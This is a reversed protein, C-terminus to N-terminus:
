KRFDRVREGPAEEDVFPGEGLNENSGAGQRLRAAICGLCAVGALTAALDGPDFSRVPSLAQLGEDATALFGVVVLM